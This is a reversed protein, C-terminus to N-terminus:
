AARSLATIDEQILPTAKEAVRSTPSSDAREITPTESHMAPHNAGTAAPIKPLSLTARRGMAQAFEGVRGLSLDRTGRIERSIVSRHVGLARALDSQTIGDEIMAKQIARRVNGIFRAAARKSPSIAIQFSAM